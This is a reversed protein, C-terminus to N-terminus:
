LGALADLGACLGVRLRERYRTAPPWGFARLVESLTQGHVCVGDVADRVRVPRLATRAALAAADRPALVVAVPIAMRMRALRRSRALVGDMWDRSGAGGASPVVSGFTGRVGECACREVLAAYARGAEVQAVTFLAGDRGRNAAKIQMRDFADECAVPHFGDFTARRQRPGSPTLVTEVQPAVRVPGRAVAVGIEASAGVPLAAAAKVEAVRRAEARLRALGAKHDFVTM